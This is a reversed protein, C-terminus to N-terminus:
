ITILKYYQSSYHDKRPDKKQEKSIKLSTIESQINRKNAEFMM